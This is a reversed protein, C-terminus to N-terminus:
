TNPNDSSNTPSTKRIWAILGTQQRIDSALQRIVEMGVQPKAYMLTLFDRRSLTYLTVDSVCSITAPHPGEDLTSLEGFADGGSFTSIITETEQGSDISAVVAGELVFHMLNNYDGQAIVVDSVSYQTKNLMLALDEIDETNLQDFFRGSRLLNTRREVEERSIGTQRESLEVLLSLIPSDQQLEYDLQSWIDSEISPLVSRLWIWNYLGMSQRLGELQREVHALDRRLATDFRQRQNVRITKSLIGRQAQLTVYHEVLYAREGLAERHKNIQEALHHPNLTAAIEGASLSDTLEHQIARGEQMISYRIIVVLIGFGGLGIAIGAVLLLFGDLETVAINFLAHLLAAVVMSAVIGSVRSRSNRYINAGIVAGVIGSAFAHMLSASIVRALTTALATDPNGQIYHLNEAVAFGTGAAFGYSAGEATYRITMRYSLFFLAFAKLLEEFIPATFISTQSFSLIGADILANQVVLAVFFAFVGWSFVAGLLRNDSVSYLELTWIVYLFILPILIAVAVSIIM